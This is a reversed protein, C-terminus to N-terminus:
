SVGEGCRGVGHVRAAIERLHCWARKGLRRKAALKMWPLSGRVGRCVRLAFMALDASVESRGENFAASARKGADLALLLRVTSGLRAGDPLALGHTSFFADVAAARGMLDPLLNEAVYAASMNAAHLRYVAQYTGVFGVAGHAALRLWMEMDATHPLEPRYGGLRRQLETRVVATPTRVVNAAGSLEIFESGTFICWDVSPLIGGQTRTGDANLTLYNGFTFGVGGHSDMLDVARKHAGPLLYDDASLLLLYDASAWDLGENYTAIHGKNSCHRSVTVRADEGALENAIEATNDPSADDLILLRLNCADQALVSQVCERLFHGYGYCPVIVDVSTM